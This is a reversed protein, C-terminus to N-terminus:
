ELKKFDNDKILQYEKWLNNAAAVVSWGDVSFGSSSINDWKGIEQLWEKADLYGEQTLPFKDNHTKM